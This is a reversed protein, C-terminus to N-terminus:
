WDMTQQFQTKYNFIMAYLYADAAIAKVDAIEISSM